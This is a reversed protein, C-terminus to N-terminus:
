LRVKLSMKTGRFGVRLLMKRGNKMRLILWLTGSLGLCSATRLLLVLLHSNRLAARITDKIFHVLEKCLNDVLLPVLILGVNWDLFPM